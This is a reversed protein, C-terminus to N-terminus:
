IRYKSCRCTPPGHRRPRLCRRRRGAVDREPPVPGAGLEDEGLVVDVARPERGDVRVDVEAAPQAAPDPALALPHDGVDARQEVEHLGAVDPRHDVEVAAPAVLQAGVQLAVVVGERAPEGGEAMDVPRQEVTRAAAVPEGGAQRGRDRGPGDPELDPLVEAELDAVTGALRHQGVVPPDRRQPRCGGVQADRDPDV